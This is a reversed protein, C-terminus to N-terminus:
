IQQGLYGKPVRRAPPQTDRATIPVSSPSRATGKANASPHSGACYRCTQNERWCTRAMHGFRQCNFCQQPAKVFSRMRYSGYGRIFRAPHQKGSLMVNVMDTPVALKAVPDWRTMREADQVQEDQLLLKATICRPVGDSHLDEQNGIRPSSLCMNESQPNSTRVISSTIERGKGHSSRQREGLEEQWVEGLLVELAARSPDAARHLLWRAGCCVELM